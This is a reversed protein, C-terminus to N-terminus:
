RNKKEAYGLKCKPSAQIVIFCDGRRDCLDCRKGGQVGEIFEFFLSFINYEHSTTNM